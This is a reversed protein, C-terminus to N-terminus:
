VGRARNVLIAADVAFGNDRRGRLAGRRLLAGCRRGGCGISWDQMTAVGGGDAFIGTDCCMM